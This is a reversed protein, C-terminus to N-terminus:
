EPNARTIAEAWAAAESRIADIDKRSHYERYVAMGFLRDKIVMFGIAMTLSQEFAKGGPSQARVRAAAGYTLYRPKRDYIGLPQLQGIRLQGPEARSDKALQRVGKDAGEDLKKQLAPDKMEKRMAEEISPVLQAQFEAPTVARGKLSGLSYVIAWHRPEPIRGEDAIKAEKPPLYDALLENGANAQMTSMFRFYASSRDRLPSLGSPDPIAVPTGDIKLTSAPPAASFAALSVTAALIAAHVGPLSRMCRGKQIAGAAVAVAVV